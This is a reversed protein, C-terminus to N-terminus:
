ASPQYDQPVAVGPFYKEFFQAYTGDDIIEALAENVADILEDNEPPLALAYKEETPYQEVIEVIGDLEQDAIEGLSSPFDNVIGTLSGTELDRFADGISGFTRIEVGEPANDKAYEAGTTARQVGVTDGPQLDALSAIDPTERVNIALSQESDFYFSSFDVVEDRSEGLEGTATIAASGMDLQGGEVAPFISDFEIRVWEVELGIRSAIEETLDIDFGVEDGAEVSEFPPYDLCSGVTLIGEKITPIAGATSGNEDPPTAPDGGCATGLLALVAVLMLFSHRTKM